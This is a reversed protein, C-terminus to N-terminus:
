PLVGGGWLRATRCEEGRLTRYCVTLTYVVLPPNGSTEAQVTARYQSSRALNLGASRLAEGLEGYAFVKQEGPRPLFRADGYLARDAFFRVVQAAGMTQSSAGEVEASRVWLALAMLGALALVGLAVLVEVLTFGRNGM